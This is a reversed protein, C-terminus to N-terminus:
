RPATTLCSDDVDRSFYAITESGSIKKVLFPSLKAKEYGANLADEYATYIGVVQDGIVLAYKGEDKMLSPLANTFTKIEKELANTM